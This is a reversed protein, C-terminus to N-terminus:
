LLSEGNRLREINERFPPRIIGRETIIGTINQHPTVDFCPNYVDMGDPAVQVGGPHTVEEKSREEIPIDAGSAISFDITSVPVVSYFPIGYEKCIVSLAFTGLKNAVDGNAAVRDGGLVVLDIKGDRILTAAASDPILKSPIKAQMLEWATLRSGQFRPRTEDAYVFINKDDYFATKIVGLATGWGATALAGTNCHTLITANAPVVTNGIRGIEKNTAIDESRIADADTKLLAIIQEIPLKKAKEYTGLMRDIAWKLNVATPRALSLFACAQKFKTEFDKEGAFEKAAMYVGYAATAGIAPAGRVVMDRISFEVDKYTNCVFLTFTTPLVRQDILFLKEERYELTIFTEDM